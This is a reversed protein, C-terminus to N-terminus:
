IGFKRKIGCCLAGFYGVAADASRSVIHSFKMPRQNDAGTGTQGRRQGTEQGPVSKGDCQGGPLRVLQGREARFGAGLGQGAVRGRYVIDGGQEPM